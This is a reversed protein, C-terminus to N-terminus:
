AWISPRGLHGTVYDCIERVEGPVEDDLMLYTATDNGLHTIGATAFCTPCRFCALDWRGGLCDYRAPAGCQDCQPLASVVCVTGVPASWMTVDEPLLEYDRTLNDVVHDNPPPVLKGRRNRARCRAGAYGPVLYEWLYAALGHHGLGTLKPSNLLDDVAVNFMEAPHM